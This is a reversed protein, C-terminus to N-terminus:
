LLGKGKGVGRYFHHLGWRKILFSIYSVFGMELSHEELFGQHSASNFLTLHGLSLPKTIRPSLGLLTLPGLTHREVVGSRGVIRTVM